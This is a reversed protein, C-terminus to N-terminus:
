TYSIMPLWQKTEDCDMEHYNKILMKLYNKTQEQHTFYTKRKLYRYYGSKHIGLYECLDKMYFKSKFKDIM